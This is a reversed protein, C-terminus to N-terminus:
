PPAPPVLIGARNSSGSSELLVGQVSSFNERQAMRCLPILLSWAQCVQDQVKLRWLQSFILKEQQSIEQQPAASVFGVLIQSSAPEM